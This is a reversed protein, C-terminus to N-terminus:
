SFQIIILSLGCNNLILKMTFIVYSGVVLWDATKNKFYSLLYKGNLM